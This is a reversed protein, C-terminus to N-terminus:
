GRFRLSVGHPLSVELSWSMATSEAPAEPVLEVFRTACPTGLRQRWRQLSSLALGERRCFQRSGEGSSEFRRLIEIWEKESRRLVRGTRSRPMRNEEGDAISSRSIRRM